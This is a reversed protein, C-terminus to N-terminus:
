YVVVFQLSFYFFYFCLSSLIVLFRLALAKSRFILNIGLAHKVTVDTVLPEVKYLFVASEVLPFEKPLTVFYDLLCNSLLLLFFLLRESSRAVFFESFSFDPSLLNPLKATSVNYVLKRVSPTVHSFYNLVFHDYAARKRRSLRENM